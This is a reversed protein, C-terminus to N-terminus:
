QYDLKILPLGLFAAYAEAASVLQTRSHDQLHEFPILLLEAGKKKINRKWTGVVQGEAVIVPLFM